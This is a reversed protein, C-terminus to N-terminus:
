NVFLLYFTFNINQLLNEYINSVYLNIIKLLYKLSQLNFIKIYLYNTFIFGIREKQFRETAMEGMGQLRKFTSPKVEVSLIIDETKKRKEDEENGPEKLTLDALTGELLFTSLLVYGTNWEHEIM